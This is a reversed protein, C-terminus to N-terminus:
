AVLVSFLHRLEEEVEERDAVTQAVVSELANRFRQRLRHVAVQVAGASMHFQTGLAEYTDPGPRSSILPQLAAYLDGKGATRQDSELKAFAAELTDLAWRRDFLADPSELNVPEMAYREEAAVADISVPQTGGGRKAASRREWDSATFNKVAALLFSRLRGKARDASKLDERQLMRAFFGQTLDEAEEPTPGTRRIFAYVPYWYLRCLTDLARGATDADGNRLDMVLSWRTAPFRADHPDTAGPPM